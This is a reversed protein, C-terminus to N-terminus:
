IGAKENEEDSYDIPNSTGRKVLKTGHCRPCIKVEIQKTENNYVVFCGQGVCGMCMEMDELNM